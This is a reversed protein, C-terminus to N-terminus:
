INLFDLKYSYVITYVIHIYNIRLVCYGSNVFTFFILDFKLILIIDIIM